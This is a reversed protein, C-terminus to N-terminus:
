LYLAGCLDFAFSRYMVSSASARLADLRARPWPRMASVVREAAAKVVKRRMTRTKSYASARSLEGVLERQGM